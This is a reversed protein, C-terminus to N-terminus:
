RDAGCGTPDGTSRPAWSRLWHWAARASPATRLSRAYWRRAGAADGAQERLEGLLCHEYAFYPGMRLGRRRLERRRDQWHRGLVDLNALAMAERRRSVNAGHSRKHQWVTPVHAFRCIPALRLWLELDEVMRRAEDFGGAAELHRRHVLVAGTPIYNLRFLKLDQDPIRLPDGWFGDDLGADAFFSPVLVGGADFVSCDGFVLGIEPHADLLSLGAALRGPPWLDDADLFAILEGGAAAIGRNRAASPGANEALQLLRVGDRGSAIDATADSSADDVVIVEHRFPGRQALVSDLCAGLHAAADHAPIITTILCDPM